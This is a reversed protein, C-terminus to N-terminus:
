VRDKTNELFLSYTILMFIGVVICSDAINFAPWHYGAVHVDLFDIVAGFRARDIVNGIAGGIVLAIATGQLWSHSKIMWILFVVSVVLSLGILIFPMLDNGNGSLLGFSVGENWVMVWNFFNTVEIEIYGLREPASMLWELFGFQSGESEPRLIHETVFWKSLQDLIIIVDILTMLVVLRMARMNKIESM